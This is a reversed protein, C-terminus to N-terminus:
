LTFGKGDRASFQFVSIFVHSGASSFCESDRDNETAAKSDNFEMRTVLKRDAFGHSTFNSRSHMKNAHRRVEDRAKGM